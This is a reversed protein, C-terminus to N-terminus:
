DSIDDDLNIFVKYDPYMERVKGCIERFEAQRDEAEFTMVIDFKITKTEEDLYFGHLQVVERYNQMLEYLEARIRMAEPNSTNRSYIGVATIIVGHQEYVDRAIQSSLRDIERANMEEPIEVHVSGQLHDPGYSNLVLDYAGFVNERDTITNKVAKSLEGSVRVGLIDNLTDRMMDIGNKLIIISIVVGVYAELSIGTVKMLIATALVSASLFADNRADSGSAVLSMSDVSKGVSKVYSGLLLKVVVAVAIIVLSIVSYTATEPHIIKEISEKLSTIGAYLVIVSIITASLYEIRGHGYPHKRDAPKGALKTGIITIISSLADSLNNVADLTISISNSLIGIVAKFAALLVNAAISIISTRIIRGDRSSSLEQGNQEQVTSNNKEM